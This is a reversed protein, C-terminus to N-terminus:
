KIVIGEGPDEGNVPGLGEMKSVKKFTFFKIIGGFCIVVILIILEIWNSSTMKEGGPVKNKISQV